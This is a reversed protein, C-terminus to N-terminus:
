SQHGSFQDRTESCCFDYTFEVFLFFIHKPLTDSRLYFQNYKYISVFNKFVLAPKLSEVVHDSLTIASQGGQAPHASSQTSSQVM